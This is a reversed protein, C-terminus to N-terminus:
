RGSLRKSDDTVQCTYIQSGIAGVTLLPQLGGPVQIAEPIQTYESAPSQALTSYGGASAVAVLGIYVWYTAQM